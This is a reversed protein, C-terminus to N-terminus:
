GVFYARAIANFQAPQDLFAYHGADSITILTARKIGKELRKAQEIPTADDTEGWLLFVEHSIKPLSNDQFESVVNVFIQRMVGDLAAYDSSGIRKWLSTKRLWILGIERLSVPLLQFPFKLVKATYKRVYFSPKRRPKLGAGGTILVKNFISSINPNSLLNLMIRCGFSHALVHCTELKLEKILDITFSAYDSIDWPKTPVDSEGFGPLDILYCSFSDKLAPVIGAMTEARCGWGHLFLVPVGSGYKLVRIKLGNIELVIVEAEM